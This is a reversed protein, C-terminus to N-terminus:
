IIDKSYVRTQDMFTKQIESLESEVVEKETSDSIIFPKGLQIDIKAFPKPLIFRDWSGFRFFRKCNCSVPVIVRDAKKALYLSGPKVVYVPGKPGDVAMGAHYGKNMYDLMEMVGASAGRSSSARVVAHGFGELLPAFMDGDKSRSVMSVTKHMGSKGLFLALQNHWTIFVLRKGADALRTVEEDETVNYRFTSIYIRVLLRILLGKM